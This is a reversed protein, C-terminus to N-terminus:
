WGKALPDLLGFSQPKIIARNTDFGIKEDAFLAVFDVDCVPESPKPEPFKILKKVRYNGPMAVDLEAGIQNAQAEDPAEGQVSVATNSLRGVGGKLKGVARTIAETAARYNEPAGAALTQEDAVSGGVVRRTRELNAARGEDSPALGAVVTRNAGRTVSWVYPSVTPLAAPTPEPEPEPEPESKPEPEPEPAPKPLPYSIRATLRFNEPKVANLDTEIRAAEAESSARGQVVMNTDTLRALGTELGAVGSIAAAVANGFGDPEGVALRQGDQVNGPIVSRVAATNVNGLGRNPVFGSIVSGDATKDLSWSYPSVTAPEIAREGWNGESLDAATASQAEEYSLVTRAKGKVSLTENLLATEGESLFDLVSLGKRANALYGSPAGRVITMRNVMTADPNLAKAHSAINDRAVRTPAMGGLVISSGTKKATWGYDGSVIPPLVSASVSSPAGPLVGALTREAAMYDGSTAATGSISMDTDSLGIRGQTFRRLARLSGGTLETLNPPAGAAIKMNDVVSTGPVAAQAQSGVTARVEASPVYGGLTIVNDKLDATWTYPSVTPPAIEQSAITLGDVPAQLAKTGADFTELNSAVGNVSLEADSLSVSGNSFRPLQNLAYGTHEVFAPGAGAAIKMGDEIEANPLAARAQDLVTTRTADSPVFGSLALKSGDYDAGWAYPAVTPPVLDRSAITLGGLPAQLAQNAASFTDLNTAVGEVSLDADSLSVSGNSFRPLQALAFGTHATFASGAGAAIDMGDEIEANPLAAKAQDLVAARSEDNPVFGTLALKTGDYDAKWTYPSITAPKIDTTGLTLGAPLAGSVATTALRYDNTSKAVGSVDLTQDSLSVEGSNLRTLQELAFGGGERFADPAGSSLLQEDVVNAGPVAAAAAQALAAKVDTNPVSGTLRVEGGDYRANWDYPSQVPPTIDKLSLTAGAPLAGDLATNIADFSARDKSQGSVSLATDELSMEGSTLGALQAFGFSGAPVLADPAGRAMETNNTVTVGPLAEGAAAVIQSRVAENPVFGTLEVSNGDRRARLMYPSQMAMLTSGDAVVRVDYAEDTVFQAESQAAESPAAGSVTADRGDMSVTAWSQGQSQLAAEAKGKLDAEIIGAKWWIALASLIAITLFGPWIWKKWHCM